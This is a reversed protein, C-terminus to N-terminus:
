RRLEKYNVIFLSAIISQSIVKPVTNKCNYDFVKERLIRTKSEKQTYM